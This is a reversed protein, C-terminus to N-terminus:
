GHARPRRAKRHTEIRSSVKNLRSALKGLATNSAKAAQLQNAFAQSAKSAVEDKLKKIVNATTTRSRELSAIRNEHATRKGELSIVRTRLVNIQQQLTDIQSTHDTM